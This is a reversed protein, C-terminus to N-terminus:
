CNDSYNHGSDEPGFYAIVEGAPTGGTLAGWSSVCHCPPLDESVSGRGDKHPSLGSSTGEVTIQREKGCVLLGM